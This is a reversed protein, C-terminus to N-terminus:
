SAERFETPVENGWAVFGDRATRAFLELRPEPSAELVREYFVDPKASHRGAPADFHLKVGVRELQLHGLRGFLVHETSYMWTFPTIGGPKIWTHLCEYKVGWDRFLEGGILLFRQTVWLYIHCGNPNAAQRIMEGVKTRITDVEMTPYGLDQRDNPRIERQMPEVPWPPDIVICRAQGTISDPLPGAKEDAVRQKWARIEDRLEERTLEKEEALDLFLDQQEPELPAVVQHHAFSLSERRRSSEVKRAIWADNSLTGYAFSKPDLVQSAREGYRRDGYLWLDGLMWHTREHAAITIQVAQEWQEFTPDGEPVVATATVRFGPLSLFQDRGSKVM